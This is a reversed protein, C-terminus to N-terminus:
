TPPLDTNFMDFLVKWSGIQQPREGFVGEAVGRRRRARRGGRYRHLRAPEPRCSRKMVVMM